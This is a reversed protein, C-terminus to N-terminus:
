IRLEPRQLVVAAGGRGISGAVVLGAISAPMALPEGGLLAVRGARDVARRGVGGVARVDTRDLERGIRGHLLRDDLGLGLGGRKGAGGGLQAEALLHDEGLAGVIASIRVPVPTSSPM